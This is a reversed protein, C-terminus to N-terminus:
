PLLKRVHLIEDHSTDNDSCSICAVWRGWRLGICRIIIMLTLSVLILTSPATGSTSILIITIVWVAIMITPRMSAASEVGIVDTGITSGGFWPM